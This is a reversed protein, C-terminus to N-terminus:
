TNAPASPDPTFARQGPFLREVYKGLLDFELNVLAAESLARLNTAQLTHPILWVAFGDPHVEAVTLSVGNIAVSGKYVLYRTFAEPVRIRLYHDAGRAEFAIVEGTADIHGSVFHGGIKGAYRLSRELNLPDGAAVGAFRTLRMTEALVDFRIFDAGAEVATLCCGDVAISDGIALDECARQAAITLRCGDARRDLATLTGTEEVIGTFM